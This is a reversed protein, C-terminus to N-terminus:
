SGPRYQPDRKEMLLAHRKAAELIKAPDAGKKLAAKYARLAASRGKKRGFADYFIEFNRNIIADADIEDFDPTKTTPPPLPITSPTCSECEPDVFTASQGAITASQNEQGSHSFQVRYTNAGQRGDDRRNHDVELYGLEQLKQINTLVTRRSQSTKEAITEVKLTWQGNQDVYNCIAILTLKASSTIRADLAQAVAQISM